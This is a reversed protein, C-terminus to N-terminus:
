NLNTIILYQYIWVRATQGLDSIWSLESTSLMCLTSVTKLMKFTVASADYFVSM